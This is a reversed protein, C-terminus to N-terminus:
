QRLRTDLAAEHLLRYSAILGDRIATWDLETLSRTRQADCRKMAEVRQRAAPLYRAADGGYIAASLAAVTGACAQYQRARHERWWQLEMRAAEGADLSPNLAAVIGYYSKMHELAAQHRTADGNGHFLSAARAAHWSLRVSEFPSFGYADRAAAYVDWVLLAHRPEYYHRWM